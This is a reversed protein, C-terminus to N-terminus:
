YKLNNGGIVKHSKSEIPAEVSLEIGTAGQKEIEVIVQFALVENYLGSLHITKGDWIFNGSRDPHKDDNRFVKEGDGLAWAGRVQAYGTLQLHILIGTIIFLKSRLFTVILGNFGTLVYFM